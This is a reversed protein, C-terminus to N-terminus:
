VVQKRNCTRYLKNYHRFLGTCRVTQNICSSNIRIMFELCGGVGMALSPKFMNILEFM